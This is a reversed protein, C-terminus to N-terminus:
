KRVDLQAPPPEIAKIIRITGTAMIQRGQTSSLTARM